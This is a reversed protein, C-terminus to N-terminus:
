PDRSDCLPLPRAKSITRAKSDVFLTAPPDQTVVLANGGVAIVAANVAESPQHPHGTKRAAVKRLHADFDYLEVRGVGDFHVVLDGPLRVWPKDLYIRLGTVPDIARDYTGPDTFDGLLIGQGFYALDTDSTPPPPGGTFAFSFHAIRKRKSVNYTTGTDADELVFVQTGQANIVTNTVDSTGKPLADPIRNCVGARCVAVTRGEAFLEFQPPLVPEDAPPTPWTAGGVAAGTRPDVLMCGIAGSDGCRERLCVIALDGAPALGIEPCTWDPEDRPICAPPPPQPKTILVPADPEADPPPAAVIQEPAPSAAPPPASTGCAGLLVLFWRRM